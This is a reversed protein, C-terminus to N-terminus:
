FAERVLWNPLVKVVPLEGEFGIFTCMKEEPFGPPPPACTGAPRLPWDREEGGQTTNRRQQFGFKTAELVSVASVPRSVGGKRFQVIEYSM